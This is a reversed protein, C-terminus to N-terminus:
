YGTLELRQLIEDKTESPTKGKTYVVLKALEQNSPHTMLFRNAEMGNIQLTNQQRLIAVSEDLDPSPMLLIVNAYPALLECARELDADEEYVSHGCGFDIVCNQNEKLIREVVLLRFQRWRRYYGAVGETEFTEKQEQTGWGAEAYYDFRVRDMSVQPLGLKQALIEGITSKGAGMPGILIIDSAQPDVQALIEESTQEPTKNKTYFTSKALQYNSRDRIFFENRELGNIKITSRDELIKLSEELDESPLILVVDYPQLVQEVQAFLEVDDYVSQPAGLELVCEAYEAVGRAIAYADFPLMYRYVGQAGEELWAQKHLRSDYDIEQYYQECVEWLDIKPVALQSSLLRGITSKGVYRPGILIIPLRRTTLQSPQRDKINSKTSM